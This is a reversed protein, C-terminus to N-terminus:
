KQGGAPHNSVGISCPHHICDPLNLALVRPTSWGIAERAQTEIAQLWFNPVVGMVFMLVALPWLSIKERGDLDLSLGAHSAVLESEPGYFVKQVLTLLYAASLIVGVTAATAWGKNVGTFTSSLVLFEGVFGNFLPLGVLALGTIVFLTALSPTKRALGGYVSIQSTGFREYLVGLLVFLGAGIVGENITQFVAGDLGSVTFGYIGLTCFSLSSMTGYALLKWFDKQVLALLAGYLIGVAAIAIMWPAVQKAQVPFLGVHFRILSYLGLKGAVIMGMAVPAESFADPLWGHLGLVPVKVAFAILFAFAAWFLGQAPLRGLYVAARLAEFSFSGTKAYLWLIAVLLPASPIFTYLFFRVAAKTGGNETVNRGYMAILIAMPVLSLEWFGYYLMLDLSVFVGLMATQQLLFLAYFVKSRTQITKWSALVGVPALLGTLVVLWLSLGDVGVHYHIPPMAIWSIDQVFKFGRDGGIGPAAELFHAPLHLTLLFTVMATALAVWAPLKGKDPVLLVLLAGILPTVLILSLITTDM